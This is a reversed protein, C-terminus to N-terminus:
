TFGSGSTRREPAKMTRQPSQAFWVPARIAPRMDLKPYNQFCLTSGAKLLEFVSPISIRQGLGGCMPNKM